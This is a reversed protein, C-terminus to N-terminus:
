NSIRPESPMSTKSWNTDDGRVMKNELNQRLEEHEEGKQCEYKEVLRVIYADIYCFFLVKPALSVLLLSVFIFDLYGLDSFDNVFHIIKMILLYFFYGGILVLFLYKIIKSLCVRYLILSILIFLYFATLCIGSVLLNAYNINDLDRFINSDDLIISITILYDIILFLLIFLYKKKVEEKKIESETLNSTESPEYASEKLDTPRISM